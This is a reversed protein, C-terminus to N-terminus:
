SVELWASGRCPWPSVWGSGADGRRSRAGPLHTKLIGQGFSWLRSRSATGVKGRPWERLPWGHHRHKGSGSFHSHMPYHSFIKATHAPTDVIHSYLAGSYSVSVAISLSPPLQLGSAAWWMKVCFESFDMTELNLDPGGPGWSPTNMMADFYLM